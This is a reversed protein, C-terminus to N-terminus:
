RLWKSSLIEELRVQLPEFIKAYGMATFHLYDYMDLPNITGDPLVLDATADLLEAKPITPLVKALIKNVAANKERLPNPSHGRPPVGQLM